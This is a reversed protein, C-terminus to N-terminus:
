ASAAAQRAAELVEDNPPNDSPDTALHSWVIKGGPAIVLVGGLQTASGQVTGQVIKNTVASKLGRAVTRPNYLDTVSAKKTGVAKYTVRDPDVLMRLQGVGYKEKFDRAQKATGQGIVVLEAGSADFEERDRHLQV